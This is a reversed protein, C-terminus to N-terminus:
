LLSSSIGHGRAFQGDPHANEGERGGGGEETDRGLILVTYFDESKRTGSQKPRLGTGYDKYVEEPPTPEAEPEQEPELVADIQEAGSQAAEEDHRLEPKVVVQQWGSVCVVAMLVEGLPTQAVEVCCADENVQKRTGASTRAAVYAM